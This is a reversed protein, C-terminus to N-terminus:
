RVTFTLRVVTPKGSAGVATITLTYTGPALVGSSTRGSFPVSTSGPKAAVAPLTGLNLDRTCTRGKSASAVCRGGAIRGHVVRTVRMTVSAPQDLSFSFKTGVPLKVGKRRREVWTRASQHLASLAPRTAVVTYTVTQSSAVGNSDISAVTFHWQGISATDLTAGNVSPGTCTAISVPATTTCSFSVTAPQGRYYTVSASPTTIAIQPPAIVTYGISSGSTVGRSDTTSVPFQHAGVTATNIPSASAV